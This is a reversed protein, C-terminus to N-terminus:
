VFAVGVGIFAVDRLMWMRGVPDAFTLVAAGTLGVVGFIMYPTLNPPGVAAVIAAILGLGLMLWIGYLVIPARAPLSRLWPSATLLAAATVLVAIARPVTTGSILNTAMGSAIGLLFGTLRSRWDPRKDAATDTKTVWGCHCCTDLRRCRTGTRRSSRGDPGTPAEPPAPEGQPVTGAPDLEDTPIRGAGPGAVQARIRCLWGSVAPGLRVCDYVHAFGQGRQPQDPLENHSTMAPKAAT